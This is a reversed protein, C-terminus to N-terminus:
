KILDWSVPTGAVIQRYTKKNLVAKYHKPELGFGPRISRICDGTIVEGADM